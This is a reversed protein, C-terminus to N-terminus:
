PNSGGGTSVRDVTPLAFGDTADRCVIANRREM